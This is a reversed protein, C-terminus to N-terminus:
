SCFKRSYLWWLMAGGLLACLVYPVLRFLEAACCLVQRSRGSQKSREGQGSQGSQGSRRSQRSRGSQGSQESQEAGGEPTRKCGRRCLRELWAAAACLAAGGSLLVAMRVLWYLNEVYAGIIGMIMAAPKYDTARETMAFLRRIGEAYEGLGYRIHIFGLLLALAALYGGLCWLTHGALMPLLGKRAGGSKQAAKKERHWLLFDYVWVALIMGAEPLNSFRVLVNTGLLLGAGTLCARKEEVLGRYLLVYAALFLIYTLYNYLLATPCWCLSVATLEGLFVIAGPMGLRRTCFFYGTLALLSVSLGTYLNMGVLGGAGPLKMLLSGAGNALYTSFFWMPDMHDMSFYRFNAYNYGTDWLDLGWNIHRLPYLVLILLGIGEWVRKRIEKKTM